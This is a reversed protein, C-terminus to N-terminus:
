ETWRSMPLIAAIAAQQEGGAGIWANYGFRWAEARFIPIGYRPIQLMSKIWSEELVVGTQQYFRDQLDRVLGDMAAKYNFIRRTQREPAWSQYYGGTDYRGPTPYRKGKYLKLAHRQNRVAERSCGLIAAIRGDSWNLHNEIVLVNGVGEWDIRQRM